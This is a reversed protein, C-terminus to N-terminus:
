GGYLGMQNPPSYRECINSGINDKCGNNQDIGPSEDYHNHPVIENSVEHFSEELGNSTYCYVLYLLLIINVIILVFEVHAQKM